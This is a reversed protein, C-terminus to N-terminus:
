AHKRYTAVLTSGGHYLRNLSWIPLSSLTAIMRIASFRGTMRRSSAGYDNADSDVETGRHRRLRNRLGLAVTLAPEWIYEDTRIQVQFGDPTLENMAKPTMMTVHDVPALMTWDSGSLQAPLASANPTVLFIVGGPSVHRALLKMFDRPQYIHEIVHSLIIIDFKTTVPLSNEGFYETRIDLGFRERGIKSHSASPEVGSVEMGLEQGALLYAGVGCGIDLLRGPQPRLAFSDLMRQLILQKKKIDLAGKLEEDTARELAQGPDYTPNLAKYEHATLLRQLSGCRSCTGLKVMRYFGAARMAGSCVRCEPMASELGPVSQCGANHM